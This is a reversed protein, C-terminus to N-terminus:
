PIFRNVNSGSFRCGFLTNGPASFDKAIKGKESCRFPENRFAAPLSRRPAKLRHFVARLCRGDM